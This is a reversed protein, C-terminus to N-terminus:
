KRNIVLDSIFEHSFDAPLRCLLAQEGYPAANVCCPLALLAVRWSVGSDRGASEHGTSIEHWLAKCRHELLSSLILFSM